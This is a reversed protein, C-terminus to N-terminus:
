PFFILFMGLKEFVDRRIYLGLDGDLIGFNELEITLLTKMFVSFRNLIM